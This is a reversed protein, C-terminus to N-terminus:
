LASVFERESTLMHDARVLGDSINEHFLKRQRIFHPDVSQRTANIVLGNYASLQQNIVNMLTEINAEVITILRVDQENPAMVYSIPSLPRSELSYENEIFIDERHTQPVTLTRNENTSATENLSTLERLATRQTVVYPQMEKHTAGTSLEVGGTSCNPVIQRNEDTIQNRKPKSSFVNPAVPLSKETEENM